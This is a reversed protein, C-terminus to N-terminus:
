LDNYFPDKGEPFEFSNKQDNEEEAYMEELFQEIDEASPEVVIKEKQKLLQENQQVLIDNQQPIWVKMLYDNWDKFLRENLVSSGDKITALRFTDQLKKLYSKGAEDKDFCGYIVNSNQNDLLNNILKQLLPNNIDFEGMLAMYIGEAHYVQYHSMADIVSEFIYLDGSGKLAKLNSIWIGKEGEIHNWKTSGTGKLAFGCKNIYGHQDLTFLPFAMNFANHGTTYHHKQILQHDHDYFATKTIGRGDLYKKIFQEDDEYCSIKKPTTSQSKVKKPKSSRLIDDSYSAKTLDVNHIFTTAEQFKKVMDIEVFDNIFNFIDKDGYGMQTDTVNEGFARYAKYLWEGNKQYVAIHHEASKLRYNSKEQIIAIGLHASIFEALNISKKIAKINIIAGM